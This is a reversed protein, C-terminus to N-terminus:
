PIDVARRFAKAADQPRREAARVLRRRVTEGISGAQRAWDLLDGYGHLHEMPRTRTGGVTNAFDLAPHGGSLDFTNMENYGGYMM